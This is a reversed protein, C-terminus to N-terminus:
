TSGPETGWSEYEGFEDDLWKMTWGFEGTSHKEYVLWLYANGDIAVLRKGAGCLFLTAELVTAEDNGVVTVGIRGFWSMQLLGAFAEASSIDGALGTPYFDVQHVAVSQGLFVELKRVVHDLIERWEAESYGPTTHCNFLKDDIASM